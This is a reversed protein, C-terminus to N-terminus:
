DKELLLQLLLPNGFIMSAAISFKTEPRSVSGVLLHNKAWTATTIILEVEMPPGLNVVEFKVLKSNAGAVPESKVKILAM